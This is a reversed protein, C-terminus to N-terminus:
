SFYAHLWPNACVAAYKPAWITPVISSLACTEVTKPLWIGLSLKSPKSTIISRFAADALEVAETTNLHRQGPSTAPWVDAHTASETDVRSRNYDLIILIQELGYAVVGTPPVLDAASAGVPLRHLRRVTAACLDTAHRVQVTFSSPRSTTYPSSFDSSTADLQM